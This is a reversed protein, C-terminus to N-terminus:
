GGVKEGKENIVFEMKTGFARLAIRGEVDKPNNYAAFGSVDIQYEHENRVVKETKFAEPKPVAKNRFAEIRNKASRVPSGYIDEVVTRSPIRYIGSTKVKNNM